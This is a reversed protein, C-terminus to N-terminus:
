PARPDDRAFGVTEDVTLAMGREFHEAFRDPGLAERARGELERHLDELAPDGLRPVGVQAPFRAAAGLLVAGDAYRRQRAYVWGLLEFGNTLGVLDQVRRFGALVTRLERACGDVDDLFWHALAKVYAIWSRAWVEAPADELLRLAEDCEALAAESAGSKARHFGRLMRLMILDERPGRVLLIGLAEDFCRGARGADGMFTAATGLTRLARGCGIDDGRRGALRLAEDALPMARPSEGQNTRLYASRWLADAREPFPGTVAALGRDLWYRGETFRSRCLWGSWLSAALRLGAREEGPVTFCFELAARVNDREADLRRLWRDQDDTLWAAAARGALRALCDRHRARLPQVPEVEKLWAAGYERLTDLMLHRGDAARQVISKGALGALCEAVAERDLRSDACVEEAMARDFGGAFVSLRAWLLREPPTCLEHSWGIATRLTQHRVTESPGDGLLWFRDDLRKLLGELSLTRLRVAALEIALPIGDLRGCLLVVVDRNAATLTFGPLADRARAAFLEVAEGGSRTVELPPVALVQEGPLDLPQRSTVLVRVGPCARLVTMAFAACDAVLHECTDLILLCRRARLCEVLLDITPVAMSDRMGMSMAVTDALLAGDRVGSLEVMCVGDPHDGALERASRMAIRTKGVGGPGTLTVLRAREFAARVAGLERTRGVFATAEEPLEDQPRWARDM